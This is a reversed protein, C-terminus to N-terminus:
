SCWQFVFFNLLCFCLVDKSSFFSSREIKNINQADDGLFFHHHNLKM